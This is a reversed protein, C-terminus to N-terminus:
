EDSEIRNMMLEHEVTGLLGLRHLAWFTGAQKRINNVSQQQTPNLLNMFQKELGAQKALAQDHITKLEITARGVAAPDPNSQKLLAMLQQYKPRALERISQVTDRRTRALLRVSSTQTASLNLSKQLSNVGRDIQEDTAAAGWMRGSEHHLPAAVSAAPLTLCALLCVSLLNRLV